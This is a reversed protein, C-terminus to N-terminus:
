VGTLMIADYPGLLVRQATECSGRFNIAHINLLIKFYYHGALATTNISSEILPNDTAITAPSMFQKILDIGTM